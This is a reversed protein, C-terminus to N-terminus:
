FVMGQAPIEFVRCNQQRRYSILERSARDYERKAAYYDGAGDMAADYTDGALQQDIFLERERPDTIKAAVRALSPSIKRADDAELKAALERAATATNAISVLKNDRYVNKGVTRYTSM